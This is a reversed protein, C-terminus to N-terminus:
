FSPAKLHDFFNESVNQRKSVIGSHSLWGAVWSGLWGALWGALWTATAIVSLAKALADLRFLLTVNTLCLPVFLESVPIHDPLKPFLVPGGTLPEAEHFM